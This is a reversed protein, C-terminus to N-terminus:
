HCLVDVALSQWALEWRANLDGGSMQAGEWLLDHAAMDGYTHSLEQPVASM